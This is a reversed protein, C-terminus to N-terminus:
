EQYQDRERRVKAKHERQWERSYARREKTIIVQEAEKGNGIEDQTLYRKVYRILDPRKMGTIELSRAMDAVTAVPVTQLTLGLQSLQRQLEQGVRAVNEEIEVIKRRRSQNAKSTSASTSAKMSVKRADRMDLWRIAEQLAYEEYEKLSLKKFCDETAMRNKVKDIYQNLDRMYMLYIAVYPDESENLNEFPKRLRQILSSARHGIVSADLTPRNELRLAVVKQALIKPHMEVNLGKENWLAEFSAQRQEEQSRRSEPKRGRRGPLFRGKNDRMFSQREIQGANHAEHEDHHHDTVSDQSHPDAREEELERQSYNDKEDPHGPYMDSPDFLSKMLNELDIQSIDQKRTPVAFGYEDDSSTGGQHHHDEDGHFYEQGHPQHKHHGYYEEQGYPELNGQLHTQESTDVAPYNQVPNFDSSQRKQSQWLADPYGSPADSIDWNINDSYSPVPPQRTHYDSGYGHASTM